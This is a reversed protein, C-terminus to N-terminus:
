TGRKGTTHESAQQGKHGISQGHQTPLSRESDGARTSANTAQNNANAGDASQSQQGNQGSPKDAQRGGDQQVQPSQQAMQGAQPTELRQGQQKDQHSQQDQQGTKNQSSAANPQNAQPSLQSQQGTTGPQNAANPKTTSNTM